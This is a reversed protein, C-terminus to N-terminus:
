HPKHLSGQNDFSLLVRGKPKSQEEKKIAALKYLWRRKFCLWLLFPMRSVVVLWETNSEGPLESWSWTLMWLQISFCDWTDIVFNNVDCYRTAKITIRKGGLPPLLFTLIMSQLDQEGLCCCRKRSLPITRTEQIMTVQLPMGWKFWPDGRALFAEWSQLSVCINRVHEGAHCWATWWSTCYTCPGGPSPSWIPRHPSVVMEWLIQFYSKQHM